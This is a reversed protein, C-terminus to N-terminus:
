GTPAPRCNTAGALSRRRRQHAPRPWQGFCDGSRGSDAREARPQQGPAGRHTRQGGSGTGSQAAGSSAAANYPTPGTASPRGWFHGPDAFNQGILRSGVIKGENELLSGNAQNPFVVNALGTVLAPYIMGTLVSLAILLILAPKFEKLM